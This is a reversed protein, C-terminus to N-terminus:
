CLRVEGLRVCSSTKIKTFGSIQDRNKVIMNFIFTLM